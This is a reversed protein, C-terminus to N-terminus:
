GIIAEAHEVDSISVFTSCLISIDYQVSILSYFRRLNKNIASPLLGGDERTVHRCLYSRPTHAGSQRKTRSVVCRL